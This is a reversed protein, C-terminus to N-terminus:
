SAQGKALEVASPRRLGGGSLLDDRVHQPLEYSPAPAAPAAAAPDPQRSEDLAGPLDEGLVQEAVQLARVGVELMEVQAEIAAAVDPTLAALAASRLRSHMQPDIGSVEVPLRLLAETWRLNSQPDAMCRAVTQTKESTNMQMLRQALLMDEWLTHAPLSASSPVPSTTRALTEIRQQEQELVRRHERVAAIAPHRLESLRAAKESGLLQSHGRIESARSRMRSMTAALGVVSRNLLAGSAGSLMGITLDYNGGTIRVPSSYREDAM